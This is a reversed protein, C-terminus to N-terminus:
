LLPQLIRQAVKLQNEDINNPESKEKLYSLLNETKLNSLLEYGTMPCGGMGGLVSEFRRCGATYAANVKEYWDTTETHLHLGFDVAPYSRILSAYVEAIMEPNSEGTIDSIPIIKQGKKVLREVWYHILELSWEDGYPNGFGMSIYIMMEKHKKAAVEIMENMLADAKEFELNINKKLFTPSISFPFGIFDITEYTTAKQVGKLNAAIIMLESNSNSLDLGRIVEDSDAMQPVAKPSVFAGIDVIDFGVNLLANIYKIKEKTPIMKELGQFGDRPSEILKVM